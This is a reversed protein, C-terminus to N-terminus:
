CWNELGYAAIKALLSMRRRSVMRCTFSAGGRPSLRSSRSQWNHRARVVDLRVRRRRVSHVRVWCMPAPVVRALIVAVRERETLRQGM